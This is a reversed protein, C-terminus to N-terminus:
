ASSAGPRAIQKLRRALGRAPAPLVARVMASLVTVSVQRYRFVAIMAFQLALLPAVEANAYAADAATEGLVHLFAGGCARVFDPDRERIREAVHYADISGKPRQSPASMQTSSRRYDLMARHIHGVSTLRAVRVLWDWDCMTRAQPDFLGVREVVEARVMVTPPHVFNGCAIREYVRGKFVSVPCEQPKPDPLFAAIDFQEQHPYLAQLGGREPSCQSYYNAIHSPEIPGNEDFASFDSGCLGVDPNAKLFAVQAALREPMCIDDHDMLAIFEGRAHRIGTNRAVPLGGNEQRVARIRDGYSQLLEWTGDTSGDDVVIVEFSPYTQRLVSDIAQAVHQQGNYVVVTVSVLGAVASKGADSRDSSRVESMSMGAERQPLLRGADGDGEDREAGARRKRSNWIRRAWTDLVPLAGRRAFVCNAVMDRHTALSEKYRQEGALFDYWEHGQAANYEIALAHCVLGPRDHKDLLGYALGSQYFSVNGRHVFNYLYGLEREGVLVRLLQVEGREFATELLREHFQRAFSDNSFSTRVGKLEWARAHLERLRGLYEIGEQLTKGAEIRLPGLKGYEKLSRRIHSRTNSSLAALYGGPASRALALSVLCSKRKVTRLLVQSGVAPMGALLRQDAFPVELLHGPHRLLLHRLMGDRIKAEGDREVLFDNYEVAIADIAPAGTSHLWWARVPVFKLLRSRGEVVIGLGVVRGSLRAQILQPRWTSDLSGVWSGIWSWSNFFSLDARAELQRWATALDRLEPLDAMTVVLAPERSISALHLTGALPNSTLM